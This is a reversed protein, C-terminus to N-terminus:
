QAQISEVEEVLPAHHHGTHAGFGRGTVRVLKGNMSRLEIEMDKHGTYVHVTDFMVNPDTFEGGDDICIKKDLTVIWTPEPEDGEAVNEYNPRGPFVQLSLRGEITVLDDESTIRLCKAIAVNSVWTTFLGIACCCLFKGIM